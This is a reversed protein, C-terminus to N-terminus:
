CRRRRREAPRARSRGAPPRLAPRRGSALSPHRSRPVPSSAASGVAGVTWRVTMVMPPLCGPRLFSSSSAMLGSGSRSTPSSVACRVSASRSARPSCDARRWSPAAACARGRCRGASVRWARAQLNRHPMDEEGNLRASRFSLGDALATASRCSPRSPPFAWPRRRATPSARRVRRALRPPAQERM